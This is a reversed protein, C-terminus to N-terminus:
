VQVLFDFDIVVAPFLMVFNTCNCPKTEFHPLNHFIFGQSTQLNPNRASFGM